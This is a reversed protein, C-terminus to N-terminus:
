VGEQDSLRGKVGYGEEAVQRIVECPDGGLAERYRTVLETGWTAGDTEAERARHLGALLAEYGDAANGDRALDVAEEV